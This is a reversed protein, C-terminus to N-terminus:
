ASKCDAWAAYLSLLIGLETDKDHGQEKVYQYYDEEEVIDLSYHNVISDWDTEGPFQIHDDLRNM